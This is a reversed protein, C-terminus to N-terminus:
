QPQTRFKDGPLIVRQPRIIMATSVAAETHVVLCRGIDITPIIENLNPNYRSARDKVKDFLEYRQGPKIGDERGKDIFVLQGEGIIENHDESVIIKGSIDPPTDELYIKPSRKMYPYFRDNRRMERYNQIVTALAYKDGHVENIELVGNIIYQIGYPNTQNLDMQPQTTTFVTYRQGPQLEADGITKVFVQDGESVMEKVRAIKFIYGHPTLAQQRVFGVSDIESYTFHPPDPPPPAETTETEPEPPLYRSIDAEGSKMYIRIRDGPFIRHPNTIKQNGKWLEPWEGPKDMFRDCIDWLTDGKQVTYYFGTEYDIEADDAAAAPQSQMGALLGFCIAALTFQRLLRRGCVQFPETHFPNSYRMRIETRSTINKLDLATVSRYATTKPQM